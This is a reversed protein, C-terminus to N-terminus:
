IKKVVLKDPCLALLDAITKKLVPHVIEAAIEAL